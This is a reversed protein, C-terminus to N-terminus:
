ASLVSKVITRQNYELCVGPYNSTLIKVLELYNSGFETENM